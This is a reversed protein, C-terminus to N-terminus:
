TRKLKWMFKHIGIKYASIKFKEGIGVVENKLPRDGLYKTFLRNLIINSNKDDIKCSIYVCINFNIINFAQIYKELEYVSGYKDNFKFNIKDIILEMDEINKMSLSTTISNERCRYKYFNKNIYAARKVSCLVNYMTLLDEHYYGSPFIINNRIFIDRRYIKDCANPTIKNAFFKKLLENGEYVVDEELCNKVCERRDSDDYVREYNCVVLDLKKKKAKEIMYKMMDNSIYDDSDIFAIYEGNAQRIGSNRAESLGANKQDIVKIKSNGEYYQAIINRSNDTSGDNIIVIEYNELNQNILSDLCQKLYKEVNYVPVIISLDVKSM